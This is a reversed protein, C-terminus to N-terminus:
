FHFSPRAENKSVTNIRLMENLLLLTKEISRAHDKRTFNMLNLFVMIRHLVELMDLCPIQNTLAPRIRLIYYFRKHPFFKLTTSLSCNFCFFLAKATLQNVLSLTGSTLSTNWFGDNKRLKRVMLYFLTPGM